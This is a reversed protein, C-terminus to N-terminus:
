RTLHKKIAERLKAPRFRLRRILNPEFSLTTYFGHKDVPLSPTVAVLQKLISVNSNRLNGMVFELAIAEQRIADKHPAASKKPAPKKKAKADIIVLKAPAPCPRAVPTKPRDATRVQPNPSPRDATRIKTPAPPKTAPRENEHTFSKTIDRKPRAVGVTEKPKESGSVIKKLISLVGM